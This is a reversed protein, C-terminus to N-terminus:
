DLGREKRRAKIDAIEAAANRQAEAWEDSEKKERDIQTTDPKVVPPERKQWTICAAKWDKMTQNGVKWGKSTYFAMFADTDFTYGKEKCYVDLEILTPPHFPQKVRAISTATSPISSFEKPVQASCSELILREVLASKSIGAATKMADLWGTAEVSLLINHSLKPIRENM